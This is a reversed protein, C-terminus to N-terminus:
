MRMQNYHSKLKIEIFSSIGIIAILHHWNDLFNFSLLSFEFSQGGKSKMQMRELAYVDPVDYIFAIPFWWVCISKMESLSVAFADCIEKM